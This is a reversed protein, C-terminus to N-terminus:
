RLIMWTQRDEACVASPDSSFYMPARKNEDKGSGKMGLEEGYYIFASGSMMLNMAGALKTQAESGEGAYYGASRGMDHNTYFPADIYDKNHASFIGEIEQLRQSYFSAPTNGKVVKAIIGDKNAFDFDFLSDIGSDYYKEYVAMDSFVEAVLYADPYKEKVVDNFWSLIFIKLSPYLFKRRGSRRLGDTVYISLKDTHYIGQIRIKM